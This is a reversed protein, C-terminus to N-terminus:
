IHILSLTTDGQKIARYIAVHAEIFNRAAAIFVGDVDFLLGQKGPPFVGLGYGALLYNIPENVTVWEDVRDGYREALLASHEALEDVIMAGGEPHNWGCLNADTPGAECDPDRPDDVWTPNSFHHVTVMPRIGAALLADIFADYHALADEDIVDRQPEIRAWEISFRYADLGMSSLLEVDQQAMSFGRAADGILEGNGLGGDAVPQSWVFWDVNPNQDEIQTAASAAGFRFSGEGEPGFLPGIEGFGSPPPGTDSSGATEDVAATESGSGTQSTTPTTATSSSGATAEAGGGEGDDGCGLPGVTTLALLMVTATYKHQDHM